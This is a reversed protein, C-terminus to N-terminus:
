ETSDNLSLSQVVGQHILERIQDERLCYYEIGENYHIRMQSHSAVLARVIDGAVKYMNKEVREREQRLLKKICNGCSFNYTDSHVCTAHTELKKM